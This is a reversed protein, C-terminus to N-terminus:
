GVEEEPETCIMYEAFRPDADALDLNDENCGKKKNLKWIFFYHPSYNLTISFLCAGMNGTPTPIANYSESEILTLCGKGAQVKISALCSLAIVAYLMLKKTM